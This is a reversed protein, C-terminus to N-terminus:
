GTARGLRRLGYSIERSDLYLKFVTEGNSNNNSMAATVAEYVGQRIGDYIQENNAVANRNGVKGVLEPGAERAIYMEGDEPYGGNAYYKPIGGLGIYSSKKSSSSSGSLVSSVASKASNYLSNVTSSVSSYARSISSTVSNITSRASSAWSSLTSSASQIASSLASSITQRLSSMSSRVLTSFSSWASSFGSKISNVLSSGASTLSFSSISTRIENLKTSCESRIESWKSAVSSKLESWKSVVSNKVENAKSTVDTKIENWKSSITTKINGWATSASEKISNWIDSLKEKLKQTAEKIEDWHKVVYTVILAVGAIVALVIAGHPGIAALASGIGKVATSVVPVAGSLGGFGKVFSSVTMALKAASFLGHIAAVGAAIAVVIKGSKTDLLGSILGKAVTWVIEAVRKLIGFWDINGLFDGIAKGIENWPAIKVADLIADLIRIVGDSLVQAIGAIDTNALWEAAEMFAGKLFDGIAKAIKSWIGPTLIFGIILDLFATFKRIFLRGATEFDIKEIMGILFNGVSRGIKQFDIGKLLNYAFQVINNIKEGVKNGLGKWDIRDFLGNIKDALLSGLEAWKGSKVLDAIGDFYNSVPAEEFMEGYNPTKDDSKKKGDDSLDELRNIEDFGLLQKKVEKIEEKAKETSEAWEKSYDIAKLYTTKGGLVAFFQTVVEAAKTVLAIIKQIVPQITAILTAWSAGLQNSMKFSASAMQDYAVSIYHTAEGFEKSFHYANETGEKLTDTVFKIASRIARYFAIRGFSSVLKKMPSETKLAEKAMQRIGSTISRIKRQVDSLVKSMKSFASTTDQKKSPRASEKQVAEEARIVNGRLKIAKGYDNKELAKNLKAKAEEAKAVAIDLKSANRIAEKVEEKLPASINGVSKSVKKNGVSDLTKSLSSLKPLTKSIVDNLDKLADTIKKIQSDANASSHKVEIELKELTDAM